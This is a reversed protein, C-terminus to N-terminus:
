KNEKVQLDVIKWLGQPDKFLYVEMESRHSKDTYVFVFKAQQQSDQWYIKGSKLHLNQQSNNTYKYLQPDSQIGQLATQYVGTHRLAGQYWIQTLYLSAGIIILFGIFGFVARKNTEVVMTSTKIGGIKVNQSSVLWFLLEVPWVFTGLNRLILRASDVESLTNKDVIKLGMIWKGPSRQKILDKFILILLIGALSLLFGWGNELLFNVWSPNGLLIFAYCLILYLCLALLFDILFAFLRKFGSPQKYTPKSSPNNM